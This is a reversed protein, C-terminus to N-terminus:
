TGSRLAPVSPLPCDRKVNGKPCLSVGPPSLVREEGPPVYMWSSAVADTRASAPSAQYGPCSFAAHGVQNLTAGPERGQLFHSLSKWCWPIDMEGEVPGEPAWICELPGRGGQTGQIGLLLLLTCRKQSNRLASVWGGQEHVCTGEVEVGGYRSWFPVCKRRSLTVPETKRIFCICGQNM